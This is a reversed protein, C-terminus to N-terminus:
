LFRLESGSETVTLVAERGMYLSYNAADHGAPFGFVAPVNLEDALRRVLDAATEGWQKEGRIRVFDGAVIGRVASLRGSRRLTQLMRDIHHISEGVDELLLLVPETRDDDLPTGNLSSLVSLNGGLLVGRATGKRDLPHPATRYGDLRGFLADRLSLASTDRELSDTRFFSPMTGHISEVGLRRLAYHVVTLDSFGALWKPDTRLPTLDAHDLARLAGYGGRFFLIARLNPNDIMRQLDAGRVSDPANFWGGAAGYLHESRRVHLGWGRLVDLCKEYHRCRLTDTRSSITVVGVSDGAHLYPPRVAPRERGAAAGACLLTGLWLGAAITGAKM